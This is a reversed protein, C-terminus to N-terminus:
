LGDPTSGTSIMCHHQSIRLDEYAPNHDTFIMADDDCVAVHPLNPTTRSKSIVGIGASQKNRRANGVDVVYAYM